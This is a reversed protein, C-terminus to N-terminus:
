LTPTKKEKPIKGLPFRFINFASSTLIHPFLYKQPYKGQNLAIVAGVTM